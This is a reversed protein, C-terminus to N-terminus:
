KYPIGLNEKHIAILLRDVRNLLFQLDTEQADTMVPVYQLRDKTLELLEILDSALNKDRIHVNERMDAVQKVVGSWLEFSCDFIQYRSSM